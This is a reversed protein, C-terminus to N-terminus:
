SPVTWTTGAAGARPQPLALNPLLDLAVLAAGLAPDAAVWFSVEPLQSAATNELCLVPPHGCVFSSHFQQLYSYKGKKHAREMVLMM